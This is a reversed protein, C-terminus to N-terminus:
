GVAAALKKRIADPIPISRPPGNETLRCCVTTIKGAAVAQEERTFVFAFTVSKEGLREISVAIDVEDEFKLSGAYDCHASVRPWSLRGHEDEMMVSLGLRRLLEHEAEEMFTFYAAFHLLCAADTDHFEVRRHTTFAIAM